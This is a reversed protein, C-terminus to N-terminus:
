RRVQTPKPTHGHALLYKEVQHEHQKLAKTWLTGREAALMPICPKLTRAEKRMEVLLRETMLENALWVVENYLDRNAQAFVTLEDKLTQYDRTADDGYTFARRAPAGTNIGRYQIALATRGKSEVHKIDIEKIRNFVLSRPIHNYNEILENRRKLADRVSVTQDLYEQVVIGRVNTFHIKHVFFDKSTELNTSLAIFKADTTM